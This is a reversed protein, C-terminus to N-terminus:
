RPGTHDRYEGCEKGEERAKSHPEGKVQGSAKKQAGVADWAEKQRLV